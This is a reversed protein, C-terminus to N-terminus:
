TILHPQDDGCTETLHVKYGAWTTTRKRSFRAELDYPSRILQASLPLEGQNEIRWLVQGDEMWFQQIWVRRLIDIAPVQWLFAAQQDTEIRELLWWGDQGFQQAYAVRQPKTHPMRYDDARPGYRAAWEPQLQSALWDPLLRSLSNLTFRM